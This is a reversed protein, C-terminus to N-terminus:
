PPLTIRGSKRKLALSFEWRLWAEAEGITWFMHAAGPGAFKLAAEASIQNLRDPSRVWAFRQLGARRMRPVWESGVWEAAQTWVGEAHTNDNLVSDAPRNQLLRLIQDCGDKVNDISQIGVWDVYLWGQDDWWIAVNSQQYLLTRM